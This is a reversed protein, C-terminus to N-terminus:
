ETVRKRLYKGFDETENPPLYFKLIGTTPDFMGWGHVNETRTNEYALALALAQNLKKDHTNILTLQCM